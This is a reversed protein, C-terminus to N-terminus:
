KSSRNQLNHFNFFILILFFIQISKICSKLASAVINEVNKQRHFCSFVARLLQEYDAWIKKGTSRRAAWTALFKIEMDSIASLCGRNYVSQPM